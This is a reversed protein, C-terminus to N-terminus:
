RPHLRPRKSSSLRRNSSTLDEAKATAGLAAEALPQHASAQKNKINAYVIRNRDADLAIADHCTYDHDAAADRNFQKQQSQRQGQM